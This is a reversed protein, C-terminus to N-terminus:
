TLRRTVEAAHVIPGAPAQGSGECAIWVGKPRVSPHAVHRALSSTGADVGAQKGCVGCTARDATPRSPLSMPPATPKRTM